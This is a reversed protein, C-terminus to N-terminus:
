ARVPMARRDLTKDDCGSRGVGGAGHLRRHAHDPAVPMTAPLNKEIGAVQQM